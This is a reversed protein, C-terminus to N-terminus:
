AQRRKDMSSDIKGTLKMFIIKTNAVTYWLIGIGLLLLGIGLILQSIIFFFVEIKTPFNVIFRLMIAVSNSLGGIVFSFGVIGMVIAVFGVIIGSFLKATTSFLRKIQFNEKEKLRKKFSGDNLLTERIQTPSGLKFIFTEESMENLVAEDILEEYYSLIEDKDEYDHLAKSLAKIFEKKNM